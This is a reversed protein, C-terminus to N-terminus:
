CRAFALKELFHKNFESWYHIYGKFALWCFCCSSSHASSYSFFFFFLFISFFFFLVDVFFDLFLFFVAKINIHRQLCLFSFVAVIWMEYVFFLMAYIKQEKMKCVFIRCENASTTRKEKKEEKKMRKRKTWARMYQINNNGRRSGEEDRETGIAQGPRESSQSLILLVNYLSTRM